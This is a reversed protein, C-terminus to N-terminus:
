ATPKSDIGWGLVAGFIALAFATMWPVAAPLNLGFAVVALALGAGTTEAGFWMWAALAFGMAIALSGLVKKM